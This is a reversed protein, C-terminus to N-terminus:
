AASKLTVSPMEGFIRRYKVSFRGFEWFGHEIAVDTVRTVKPDAKQLVHRVAQMRRLMVYQMPSMGLQKQCASRLPRGSVGIKPGMELMQLPSGDHAELVRRFRAIIIAHHRKATDSSPAQTTTTRVEQAASILDHELQHAADTHTWLEPNSETVRGVCEHASRLRALAAPPPTIVSVGPVPRSNFLADTRENTFSIAAWHTVGALRWNYCDGASVVAIQNMEIEAGNLVM